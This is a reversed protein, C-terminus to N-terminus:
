DDAKKLIVESTPFAFDLGEKEFSNKISFNVEQRMDLFDGYEWFTTMFNYGINQSFDGFSDLHVRFGDIRGSEKHEELIGTILDVGKQLQKSNMDYTLGIVGEGRITNRDGFNEITADLLRENAIYVAQWFKDQIKTYTLGIEKISGLTGDIRVFQGVSFPRNLLLSIAGFLNGVTKQAALAIALGGIGAGTILASVEFGITDLCFIGGIIWVFVLTIKNLLPFLQKAIAEDRFIKPLISSFIMNIVLTCVYLWVFVFVVQFIQDVQPVVHDPFRAVRFWVYAAFVYKAVHIFKQVFLFLVDDIQSETKDSVVQFIRYLRPELFILVLLVIYAISLAKLCAFLIPYTAIYWEFYQAPIIEYEYLGFLVILFICVINLIWKM